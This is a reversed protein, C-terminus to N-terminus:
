GRRGRPRTAAVPKRGARLGARLWALDAELIEILEARDAQAAATALSYRAIVDLDNLDVPDDM